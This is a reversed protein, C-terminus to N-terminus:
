RSEGGGEGTGGPTGAGECPGIHKTFACSWCLLACCLKCRWEQREGCSDHECPDFPIETYRAEFWAGDSAM